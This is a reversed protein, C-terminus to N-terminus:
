IVIIDLGHKKFISKLLLIESENKIGLPLHYNTQGNLQKKYTIEIGYYNKYKRFFPFNAAKHIIVSSILKIPIRKVEKKESAYLALDSDDISFRHYAVMPVSKLLKYLFFIFGFFLLFLFYGNLIKTNLDSTNQNGYVLAILHGVLYFLVLIFVIIIFNPLSYILASKYTRIDHPGIKFEKKIM